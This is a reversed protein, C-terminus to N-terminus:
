LSAASRAAQDYLGLLAQMLAAIGSLEAEEFNLAKVSHRFVSSVSYQLFGHRRGPFREHRGLFPIEPDIAAASEGVDNTAVRLAGQM